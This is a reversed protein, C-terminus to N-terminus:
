QAALREREVQPLLATLLDGLGDDNAVERERHLRTEQHQGLDIGGVLRDGLVVALPAVHHVEPRRGAATGRGLRDQDRVGTGRPRWLTPDDVRVQRWDAEVDVVDERGVGDGRR